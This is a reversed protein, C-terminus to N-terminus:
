GRIRRPPRRWSISSRGYEYLGINYFNANGGYMLTSVGGAELHRILARNADPDLTLDARRALPPVSLVSRALDAATISGTKV